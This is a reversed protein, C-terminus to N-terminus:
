MNRATERGMVLLKGSYMRWQCIDHLNSSLKWAHGPHDHKLATMLVQMVYALSSHVTSFEQHHASFSGSVHLSEQCFYIQSILADIPKM